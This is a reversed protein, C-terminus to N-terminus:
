KRVIGSRKKRPYNKVGVIRKMRWAVGVRKKHADMFVYLRTVAWTFAVYINKLREVMGDQLEYKYAEAFDSDLLKSSFNLPLLKFKEYEENLKDTWFTSSNKTRLDFNAFPMIVIPRELGKAKHVTMIWVADDTEPMVVTQEAENNEWWNLFSHLDNRGWASQELCVEM